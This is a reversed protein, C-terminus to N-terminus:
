FEKKVRLPFFIEWSDTQTNAMKGEFAMERYINGEGLGGNKKEGRM